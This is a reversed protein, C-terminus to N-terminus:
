VGLSKEVYCILPQLTEITNKLGEQEEATLELIKIDEVTNKGFVIPVGMSMNHCGYEGDLVVSSPIIEKTNNKIAKIIAVTGVASTWGATRKPVITEYDHLMIPPQSQIRKRSEEDLKFPKSDVRLTSFLMVQSHGHEGIVMGDVRSSSIGLEQAVWMRFRISDNLSYGLYKRRERTKSLLYMAYNLSDVPNTETIVFAEPCYKNVNEAVEKIVPLNRPLLESRSSIVGEPASAANIVIDSDKMDAYGGKRAIVDTGTVATSLDMWHSKLPGERHGIMVIEDALRQMAIHFATASGVCGAAGIITIKM